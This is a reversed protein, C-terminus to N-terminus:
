FERKLLKSNMKHAAAPVACGIACVTGLSGLVIAIAGSIRIGVALAPSVPEVVEAVALTVHFIAAGTIPACIIGAAIGFIDALSSDKDCPGNCADCPGNCAM